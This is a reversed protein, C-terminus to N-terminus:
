SAMAFLPIKLAYLGWLRLRFFNCNNHNVYMNKLGLRTEWGKAKSRQFEMFNSTIKM